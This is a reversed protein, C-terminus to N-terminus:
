HLQEGEIMSKVKIISYYDRIAGDSRPSQDVVRWWRSSVREAHFSNGGKFEIKVYPLDTSGFKTATVYSIARMMLATTLVSAYWYKQLHTHLGSLIVAGLGLGEKSHSLSAM